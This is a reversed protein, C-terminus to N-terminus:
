KVNNGLSIDQNNGKLLIEMNMRNESVYRILGAKMKKVEGFMTLRQDRKIQVECQQQVLRLCSVSISTQTGPQDVIMMIWKLLQDEKVQINMFYHIM